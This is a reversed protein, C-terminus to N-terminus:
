HRRSIITEFRRKQEFFDFILRRKILIKLSLKTHFYFFSTLVKM